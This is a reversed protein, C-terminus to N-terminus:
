RASTTNKLSELLELAKDEKAHMTKNDTPTKDGQGCLHLVGHVVVRRMEHLYEVGLGKANDEVTEVDIYLEGAIYGDELESSDFTIIDTFYDHSLFERNIELLRRSSTFIINIDDVEYGEDKAVLKLWSSILRRQTFKYNTQDTFYRIAM